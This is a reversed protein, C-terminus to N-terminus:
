ANFLNFNKRFPNRAGGVIALYSTKLLNNYATIIIIIIFTHMIRKIQFLMNNSECFVTHLKFFPTKDSVVIQILYEFYRKPKRRSVRISLIHFVGLSRVSDVVTGGIDLDFHLVVVLVKFEYATGYRVSSSFIRFCAPPNGAERRRPIFLIGSVLRLSVVFKFNKNGSSSLSMPSNFATSSRRAFSISASSIFSRLPRSSSICPTPHMQGCSVGSITAFTKLSRSSSILRIGFLMSFCAYRRLLWNGFLWTCVLLKRM